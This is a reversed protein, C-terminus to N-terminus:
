SRYMRLDSFVQSVDRGTVNKMSMLRQFGSRLQEPSLKVQNRKVYDMVLSKILKSKDQRPNERKQLKNSISVDFEPVHKKFVQAIPHGHSVEDVLKRKISNFQEPSLVKTLNGPSHLNYYNDVMKEAKKFSVPSNGADTASKISDRINGIKAQLKERADDLDEQDFDNRSLIYKKMRQNDMALWSEVNNFNAGHPIMGHIIVFMGATLLHLSHPTRPYRGAEVMEKAWEKMDDYSLNQDRQTVKDYALDLEEKTLFFEKKADDEFLLNLQNLKMTNNIRWLTNLQVVIGCEIM